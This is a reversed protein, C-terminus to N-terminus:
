TCKKLWNKLLKIDLSKFSANREPHWQIAIIPLENHFFGEITNHDSIAFSTLNKGLSKHSIFYNHYNNVIFEKGKSLGCFHNSIIIKHTESQNQQTKFVNIFGDFYINLTQLGRCVGFIPLELEIAYKILAIETKTRSDNKRPDDGGTLFVGNVDAHNFFKKPDKLSNPILIPTINLKEFLRIYDNSIGDRQEEYTNNDAFRMSVLIKM